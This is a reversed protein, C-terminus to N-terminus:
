LRYEFESNQWFRLREYVSNAGIAFHRNEPDWIFYQQLAQFKKLQIEPTLKIKEGLDVRDTYFYKEDVKSFDQITKELVAHDPHPYNSEVETGAITIYTAQGWKEYTRNLIREVEEKTLQGDEFLPNKSGSKGKPNAFYINEPLVGLQLMSNYYEVNRLYTFLVKTIYVYGKENLMERVYSNAGNTVMVTYVPYGQAVYHAIAGAMEMEDDQHPLFFVVPKKIEPTSINTALAHPGCFGALLFLIFILIKKM